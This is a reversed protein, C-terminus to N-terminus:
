LASRWRWQRMSSRSLTLAGVLTTVFRQAAGGCRCSHSVGMTTSLASRRSTAASYYAESRVLIVM